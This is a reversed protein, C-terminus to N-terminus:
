CKKVQNKFGGSISEFSSDLDHFSFGQRSIATTWRCDFDDDLGSADM